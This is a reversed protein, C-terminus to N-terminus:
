IPFDGFKSILTSGNYKSLIQNKIMELTMGSGVIASLKDSLEKEEELILDEFEDIDDEFDQLFEKPFYKSNRVSNKVKDKSM